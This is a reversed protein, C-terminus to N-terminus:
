GPARPSRRRARTDTSDAYVGIGAVLVLALPLLFVFLRYALAGGLMGGGITSDREIVDLTVDVSTHRARAAEIQSRLVRFREAGRAVRGLM